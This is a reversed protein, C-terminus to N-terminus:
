LMQAFFWRPYSQSAKLDRGGKVRARGSSDVYAQVMEKPEHKPLQHARPKHKGLDEIEKKGQITAPAGFCPHLSVPYKNDIHIYTHIHINIYIYIFIYIYFYIYIYIYIYINIYKYPICPVGM